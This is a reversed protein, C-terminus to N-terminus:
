MGNKVTKVNTFSWSNKKKLVGWEMKLFFRNCGCLISIEPHQVVTIQIKCIRGGGVPLDDLLIKQWYQWRQKGM